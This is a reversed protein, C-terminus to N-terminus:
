AIPQLLSLGHPGANHVPQESDTLQMDTPWSVGRYWSHLITGQVATVMAPLRDSSTYNM